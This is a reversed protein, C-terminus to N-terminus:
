MAPTQNEGSVQPGLRLRPGDGSVYKHSSTEDTRFFQRDTIELKPNYQDTNEMSPLESLDWHLAASCLGDAPGASPERPANLKEQMVPQDTGRGLM